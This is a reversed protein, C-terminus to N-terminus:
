YERSYTATSCSNNFFIKTLGVLSIGSQNSPPVSFTGGGRRRSFLYSSSILYNTVTHVTTRWHSTIFNSEDRQQLCIKFGITNNYCQIMWPSSEADHNLSCIMSTVFFFFFNHLNHCIKSSCFETILVRM